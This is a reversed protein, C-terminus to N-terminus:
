DKSMLSPHLSLLLLTGDEGHEYAPQRLTFGQSPRPVL